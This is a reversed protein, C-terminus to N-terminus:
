AQSSGRYPLLRPPFRLGNTGRPGLSGCVESGRRKGVNPAGDSMASRHRELTRRERDQVGQGLARALNQGRPLLQTSLLVRTFEESVQQALQVVLAFPLGAIFTNPHTMVTIRGQLCAQGADVEAM